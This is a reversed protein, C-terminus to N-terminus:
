VCACLPRKRSGSTQLMFALILCINEVWLHRTFLRVISRLLALALVTFLETRFCTGQWFIGCGFIASSNRQNKVTDSRGHRFYAVAAIEGRSLVSESKRWSNQNRM